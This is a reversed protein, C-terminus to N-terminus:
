IQSFNASVDKVFSFDTANLIVITSNRLGYAIYHQNPSFTASSAATSANYQYVPIFTTANFVYHNSGTSGVVFLQRDPSYNADLVEATHTFKGYYCWSSASPLLALFLLYFLLTFSM